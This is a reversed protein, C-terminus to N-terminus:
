RSGATSVESRVLAATAALAESRPKLEALRELHERSELAGNVAAVFEAMRRRDNDADGEIQELWESVETWRWVRTKADLHAIPRPFAGPGRSGAILQNVSQRTRGIRQAIATATVLDDPAVRAVRLEPATKEIDEIASVVAEEFSPAERDFEAIPGGDIEGFTGDDLGAEYLRELVEDSIGEGQLILTFNYTDSNTTM